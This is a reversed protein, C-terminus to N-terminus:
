PDSLLGSFADPNDEDDFTFDKDDVQEPDTTDATAAFQDTVFDTFGIAAPPEPPPEPTPPAVVPPAMTDSDSCGTIATCAVFALLALGIPKSNM